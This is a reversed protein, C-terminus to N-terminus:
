DIGHRNQSRLHLNMLYEAHSLPNQDRYHRLKAIKKPSFKAALDYDPIVNQQSYSSLVTLVFLLHILKKM